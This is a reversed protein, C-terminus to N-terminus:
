YDCKNFNVHIFVSSGMLRLSSRLGYKMSHACGACAAMGYGVFALVLARAIIGQIQIRSLRTVRGHMQQRIATLFM